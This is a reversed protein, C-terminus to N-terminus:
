DYKQSSLSSSDSISVEPPQLDYMARHIEFLLQSKRKTFATPSSVATQKVELDSDMILHTPTSSSSMSGYDSTSYKDLSGISSRLDVFPGSLRNFLSSTSSYTSSRQRLIVQMEDDSDTSEISIQLPLHHRMEEQSKRLIERSYRLSKRKSHGLPRGHPLTAVRSTVGGYAELTQDILITM